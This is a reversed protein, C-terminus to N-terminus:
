NFFARLCHEVSLLSWIFLRRNHRGQLHDELLDIVADRNFVDYIRPKGEYLIRRVYDISEGRFWSADPGSFGQKTRSSIEKPVYRGLVDRLILKGDRTRAFYRESKPGADNEDFTEVHHLDGLKMHVPIKMAFDVLDNDLFPVRTELGHAMSLKDEITLLGHMFTKAEFYLSNNIYDAPSTPKQNRSAFVGKFIDRTRIHNVDQWIPAFVRRIAENPVLRHWYNYYADIYHEFDSSADARYYRWPYGGFLEDGGIGALVVKDFRSVLKSAYFNPYSQGVRPEEIHWCMRPLCRVIDGAKLVMEYHETGFIYSMHEAAEREDFQLELGSASRVDFGITFSRMDPLQRAAVATISGSDIGGSLYSAVPVDSVLQRSVAQRFLRDVEEIAEERTMAEGTETFDFDWYRSFLCKGSRADVEMSTGAPLTRVDKFLTRDTFLNQFTMYELLAEHDLAASYHGHELIAKSESAFMLTDPTNLYYLPKIGYRDRALLLRQSRRDWIALAFMGNLRPLADAGWEAFASLLVETDSSSRFRHGCAELEARLERYNYIEGNYTLIMNGDASVMPQAAAPSLDIIALRRHGIAVPGETWVGEGDPGRHALSETMREVVGRVAPEGDFNLYGAIGCM